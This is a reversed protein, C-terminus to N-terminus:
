EDDMMDQRDPMDEGMMSRIEDESPNLASLIDALAPAGQKASLSNVKRNVLYEKAAQDETLDPNRQKLLRIPNTLNAEIEHKERSATEDVTEPYAVESFDALFDEGDEVKANLMGSKRHARVLDYLPREIYAQYVEVTQERDELDDMDQIKMAVGSQAGGEIKWRINVNANFAALEMGFKIGEIHGIFDPQLDLVSASPQTANPENGPTLTLARSKGLVLRSVSDGTDGVIVIQKFGQSKMVQNLSTKAVDVQQNANILEVRPTGFFHEVPTEYHPFLFPLVKFGHPGQEIGAISTPNGEADALSMQESDYYAWVQSGKSDTWSTPFVVAVPTFPDQVDFLPIFETYIRPLLRQKDPTVFVGVCLDNLLYSLQDVKKSFASWNSAALLAAYQEAVNGNVRRVPQTKYVKAKKNVIKRTLPIHELGLFEPYEWTGKENLVRFSEKIYADDGNDEALVRGFYYDVCTRRRVRFIEDSKDEAQRLALRLTDVVTSQILPNFSGM